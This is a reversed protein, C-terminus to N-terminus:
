DDSVLFGTGDNVAVGALPMSRQHSSASIDNGLAVALIKLWVKRGGRSRATSILRFMHGHLLLAQGLRAMAISIPRWSLRRPPSKTPLRTTCIHLAHLWPLVESRVEYIRV